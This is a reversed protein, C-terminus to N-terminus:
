PRVSTVARKRVLQPPEVGAAGAAGVVPLEEGDLLGEDGVVIRETTPAHRPDTPEVATLDPVSVDTPNAPSWTETSKMGAKLGPPHAFTTPPSCAEPEMDPLVIVSEM